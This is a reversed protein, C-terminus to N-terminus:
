LSGLVAMRRCVFPHGAAVRRTSMCPVSAKQLEHLDEYFSLSDSQATMSLAAKWADVQLNNLTHQCGIPRLGHSLLAFVGQQTQTHRTM